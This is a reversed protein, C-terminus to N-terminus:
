LSDKSHSIQDIDRMGKRLQRRSRAHGASDHVVWVVEGRRVGELRSAEELVVWEVGAMGAQLIVGEVKGESETTADAWAHMEGGVREENVNRPDQPGEIDM